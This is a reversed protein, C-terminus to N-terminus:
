SSSTAEYPRGPPWSTAPVSRMTVDNTGSANTCEIRRISATAQTSETTHTTTSSAATQRAAGRVWEAPGGDGRVRTAVAAEGVADEVETGVATDVAVTGVAADVAATAM